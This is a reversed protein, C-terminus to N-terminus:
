RPQKYINNYVFVVTSKKNVKIIMCSNSFSNLKFLKVFFKGGVLGNREERINM